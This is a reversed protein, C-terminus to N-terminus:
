FHTRELGGFGGVTFIVWFTNQLSIYVGLKFNNFILGIFVLVGEWPYFQQFDTRQLGDCQRFHFIISFWNSSYFVLHKRDGLLGSCHCGLPMSSHGECSLKRLLVVTDVRHARDELLDSCHIHPTKGLTVLFPRKLVMKQTCSSSQGWSNQRRPPRFLSHVTKWTDCIFPKKLVM